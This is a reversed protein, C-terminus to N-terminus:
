NTILYDFASLAATAGSGQAIVIQKYPTNACDGAAFIGARSAQGKADIVIEKYKTLDLNAGLWDTNPLLGIQVFIGACDLQINQLTLRNQYKLGTVKDGDGIVETTQANTIIQVNSLSLAKNLLIQDARCKDAFELVTVNLCIGALDIAAEIGSNGGGIVAVKKNKFLPGDCHPCFCVGRTKYKDEGPVGMERWKAGTAVILTRAQLKGGNSFNVQHLNNTSILKDAMVNNFISVQHNRLHHELDRALQKGETYVTGIFNNIEMTDLVQGGIREGAIAVNLGKRALYIAASIGAPGAGIILSDFPKQENMTQAIKNASNGDLKALIVEIDMRGQAFLEGNLFVTPVSMIQRNEVEDAFLAGDIAIHKIKPNLVAMLNLAQVVDPCNQCSQSFYTEFLYNGDLNQIQAITNADIKAPHGGMQLLALVLSSFEHGMPIGAFELAFQLRSLKFSPIRASTGNFDLSILSCASAIEQLLEKLETSKDDNGLTASINFALKVNDLYTKLQTKIADDLM